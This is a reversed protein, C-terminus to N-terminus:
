KYKGRYGEGRQISSQEDVNIKTVFGDIQGTYSSNNLFSFQLTRGKNPEFRQPASLYSYRGGLAGLSNWDLNRDFRYHINTEQAKQSFVEMSEFTMPLEPLGYTDENTWIEMQIPTLAQGADDTEERGIEFTKGDNTGWVLLEQGSSVFYGSAKVNINDYISWSNQSITYVFTVDSFTRTGYIFDNSFSIDGVYCYVHDEDSSVIIRELNAQNINDIWRKIKKSILKPYGGTFAYFGLNKKSRGLFFTINQV